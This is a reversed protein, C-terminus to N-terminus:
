PACPISAATRQIPEVTKLRLAGAWYDGAKGGFVSRTEALYGSLPILITDPHGFRYPAHVTVPKAYFIELMREKQRYEKLSDLSVGFTSNFGEVQPLTQNVANTLEDFGPQGNSLTVSCGGTYVVIQQPTEDFIPLFWLPDGNTLTGIGFIILVIVVLLAFFLGRLNVQVTDSAM